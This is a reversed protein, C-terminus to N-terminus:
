ALLGWWDALTAAVYVALAFALGHVFGYRLRDVTAGGMRMARYYGYGFGAIFIILLLM